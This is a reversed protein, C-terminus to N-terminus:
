FKVDARVGMATYDIDGLKKDMSLTGYTATFSAAKSVKHKLQLDIATGSGTKVGPADVPKASFSGLGLQLSTKPMIEMAGFLGIITMSKMGGVDMMATDQATGVTSFPGLHKDATFYNNAQIGAAQVTFKGIRQIWHVYLAQPNVLKEGPVVGSNTKWYDGGFSAFEALLMGPGIQGKYFADITTGSVAKGTAGKAVNDSSLRVGWQGMGAKGVMDIGLSTDDADASTTPTTGKKDYAGGEGNMSRWVAFDIDGASFLAEVGDWNVDWSILRNGWNDNITGGEVTVPGLEVGIWAYDGTVAKVTGGMTQDNYVLRSHMYYGDGKADIHLRVRSNSSAEVVDSVSGVKTENSHMRFRTDGSLSVDASAIAPAAVAASVAIAILSKKM